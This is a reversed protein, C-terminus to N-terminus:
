TAEGGAGPRVGMVEFYVQELTAAERRVELIGAGSEVLARVVTPTVADADAVSV